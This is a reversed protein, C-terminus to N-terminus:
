DKAPDSDQRCVPGALVAEQLILDGLAPSLAWLCEQRKGAKGCTAEKLPRIRWREQSNVPFMKNVQFGPM